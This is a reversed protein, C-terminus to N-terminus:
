ALCDPSVHYGLARIAKAVNKPLCGFGDFDQLSKRADFWLGGGEGMTEHECYGYKAIPDIQVTWGGATATLTYNM